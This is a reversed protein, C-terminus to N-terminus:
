PKTAARILRRPISVRHQGYHLVLEASTLTHRTFLPAFLVRLPIGVVVAFVAAAVSWKTAPDSILLLSLGVLLMGEVILLGLFVAAVSWYASGHATYKFARSSV